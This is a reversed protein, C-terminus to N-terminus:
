RTATFRRSTIGEGHNKDIPLVDLENPSLVTTKATTKEDPRAM